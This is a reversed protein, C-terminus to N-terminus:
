FTRVLEILDDMPNEDDWLPVDVYYLPFILEKVGINIAQRVFFQLERRCEPSMFYRPTLVPIFFAVTSLSDDIKGKWIDGWKIADKDLFLNISEGTLLEFQAVMDKALLSIRKNEAKDDKHVYSWFGEYSSM